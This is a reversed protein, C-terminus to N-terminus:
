IPPFRLITFTASLFFKAAISGSVYATVDNSGLTPPIPFSSTDESATLPVVSYAPPVNVVTFLPVVRLLIAAKSVVVPVAVDNSGFTSPTPAGATFTSGSQSYSGVTLVQGNSNFTGGAISLAGSLMVSQGAAITVRGLGYTSELRIGIISVVTDISCDANSTSNFVATDGAGPKAGGYWNGDTNWVGTGAGNNWIVDADWNVNNGRNTSSVMYMEVPDLNISDEVWVYSMNRPGSPNIKWQTPAQTSILHIHQAYAGQITLTGIITQTKGAEFALYKSPTLCTFNYFTNNGFIHSIKSADIFTVTYTAPNFTGTTVSFDGSLTLNSALTLTGTYGNLILNDITGQFSPDIISDKNPNLGTIGDFTVTDFETPLTGTDWNDPDSWLASLGQGTWYPDLDFNTLNGLSSSHTAKLPPGRANYCDGIQTYLIDTEGQPLIKWQKPPDISGLVLLKGYAGKLTLVGLISQTEDGDFRVIKGPEIITFNYFINSGKVFAPKDSVLSVTSLDPNFLGLNVWNKGIEYLTNSANLTVGEDIFLSGDTVIHSDPWQNFVASAGGQKLTIDGASIINAITSQGSSQITINGSEITSISTGQAQKFSGTGDLDADALLGLNGGDTNIDANVLIDKFASIITNGVAKFEADVTVSNWSSVQIQQASPRDEIKLVGSIQVNRNAIVRIVGNEESFGTAKIIGQQNVANKFVDSAVRAEMVVQVGEVTGSNALADKVENGDKDFVKGGTERDVEVQIIGKNDFTVTSRDGSIFFVNGLRGIVTGHNDVASAILAINNGTIAGQNLIQSYPSGPKYEFIYNGNRFNNASIDLTTAVFNNVNIQAHQGINLGQQNEFIFLGKLCNVRGDWYSPGNGMVKALLRSADTPLCVDLTADHGVNGSTLQM